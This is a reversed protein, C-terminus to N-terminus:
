AAQRNMEVFKELDALKFRRAKGITVSPIEGRGAMTYVSCESIALFHAVERVTMLSSGIESTPRITKIKAKRIEGM